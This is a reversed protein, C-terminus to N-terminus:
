LLSEVELITLHKQTDRLVTRLKDASVGVILKLHLKVHMFSTSSLLYIDKMEQTQRVNGTLRELKGEMKFAASIFLKPCVSTVKFNSFLFFSAWLVEVQM